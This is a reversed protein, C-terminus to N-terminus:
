EKRKGNKDFTRRLAVETPIITGLLVLIQVMCLVGGVAGVTDTDKGWALAMVAVTAVALGVGWRHWITGCHRHAFDWTDKNKTSMGTRYGYIYNITKPPKKIFIHGTIFMIAPILLTMLTMYIWFGM